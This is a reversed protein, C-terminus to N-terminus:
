WKFLELPCKALAKASNTAKIYDISSCVFIWYRHKKHLRWRYVYNVLWRCTQIKEGTEVGCVIEESRKEEERERACVTRHRSKISIKQARKPSLLRHFHICFSLVIHFPMFGMQLCTTANNDFWRSFFFSFINHKVYPRIHYWHFLSRVHPFIFRLHMYSFFAAGCENQQTHLLRVDHGFCQSSNLSSLIKLVCATHTIPHQAMKEECLTQTRFTKICEDRVSNIHKHHM